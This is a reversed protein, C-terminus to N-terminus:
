GVMEAKGRRIAKQYPLSAVMVAEVHLVERLFLVFGGMEAKAHPAVIHSLLSAIIEVKV